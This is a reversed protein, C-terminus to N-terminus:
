QEGTAIPMQNRSWESWSGVYLKAGTIGAQEMALLTHCATVGSGCHVLVNEAKMSKMVARYKTALEGSPLFEGADNLNGIYPVNVAGPIHGAVLDFPESEARYRYNERVDIILANPDSAAQVIDAMTVIPLQWQDIPYDTAAKSRAVIKDSLPIGAEIITEWSGDLVFINRHGAARMMWWFRAAANAGSKDDYVLVRTSPTIGLETLLRGFKQPEPLPHRGGQAADPRKTSLENELDVFIAGKLHAHKYRELADLGGRADVVVANGTEIFDLAGNVSVLPNNM